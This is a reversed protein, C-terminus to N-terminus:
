RWVSVIVPIILLKALWDGAHIAALRSPVHEHIVSGALLAVPFALWMVLGLKVAGGVDAIGMLQLLGAVVAALVLGKFLEVGMVLPVPPPSAATADRLDALRRAFVSYYVAAFLLVAVASTVIALYNLHIM